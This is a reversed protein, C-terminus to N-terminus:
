CASELKLNPAAAACAALISLCIALALQYGLQCGCRDAEERQAADEVQAAVVVALASWYARHEEDAADLDQM